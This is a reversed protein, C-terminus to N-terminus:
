KEFSEIERFEEGKLFVFGYFLGLLFSLSVILPYWFSGMIGLKALHYMFVNELVTYIVGIWIMVKCVTMKNKPSILNATIIMSFGASFSAVCGRLTQSVVESFILLLVIDIFYEGLKLMIVEVLAAVIISVPILIIWRFTNM